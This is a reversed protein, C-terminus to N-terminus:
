TVMPTVRRWRSRSLALALSSVAAGVFASTVIRRRLRADDTCVPGKIDWGLYRRRDAFPPPCSYAVAELRHTQLGVAEANPDSLVKDSFGSWGIGVGLGLPVLVTLGALAVRPRRQARDALGAVTLFVGLGVLGAALGIAM